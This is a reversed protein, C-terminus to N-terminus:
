SLEDVAEIIAKAHAELSDVIEIAPANLGGMVLKTQIRVDQERKYGPEIGIVIKMPRMAGCQFRALHRGLEYMCIPQVSESASFWMSFIDSINLAQYEWTIQELAANPDHIPFDKRRPNLLTGVMDPALKQIIAVLEQQWEPCQTIGGALFVFPRSMGDLKNVAEVYDM